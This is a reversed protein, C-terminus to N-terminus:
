KLLRVEGKKGRIGTALSVLAGLASSDIYSLGKLNFVFKVAGADIESQVAALLSQVAEGVELRGSMDVIAVGDVKRIQVSFAM